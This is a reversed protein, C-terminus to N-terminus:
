TAPRHRPPDTTLLPLADAVRQRRARRRGRDAAERAARRADAQRTHMAATALLDAAQQIIDADVHDHNLCRRSAASLVEACDGAASRATAVAEDEDLHRVVSSLAEAIALAVLPDPQDDTNSGPDTDPRTTM